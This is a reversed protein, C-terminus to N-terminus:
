SERARYREIANLVKKALLPFVGLLVFSLVLGPSLIDGPSDVQALQTGANVYVFTAPLMGLQSVWYFTWTPIRTLGMVINIIFFPFVPVLRLAFLYFAGERAMGRHIAELRDGFRAQVWDHLLYRSVLFALTAGITSAFSTIVSGWLLGFLAGAALSMIAAGPLSLATVLIYLAAFLLAVLLPSQRQWQAFQAQGQKLSELTLYQNLDFAFFGIGLLLLLAILVIKKTM